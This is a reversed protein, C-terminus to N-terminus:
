LYSIGRRRVDGLSAHFLLGAFGPSFGHGRICIMCFDASRPIPLLWSSITQDLAHWSDIQLLFFGYFYYLRYRFKQTARRTSLPLPGVSMRSACCDGSLRGLCSGGLDLGWAIGERVIRAERVHCSM